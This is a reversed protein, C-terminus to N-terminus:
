QQEEATASKSAPLASLDWVIGDMVELIRDAAVLAEPRHAISVVTARSDRLMSGRLAQEFLGETAADVNATAEDLMLVPCRRLLARALCLLQRQGSSLWEGLPGVDM